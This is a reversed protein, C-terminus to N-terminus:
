REVVVTRWLVVWRGERRGFVLLDWGKEEYRQGGLEYDMTWPMTTVASDGTQDIHLEGAAFSHITAERAFDAYSAILAERGVTRGAFGPQALVADPHFYQRLEDFRGALWAATIADVVAKIEASLV